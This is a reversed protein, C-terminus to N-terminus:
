SVDGLQERLRHLVRSRIKRVNAATIEFQQAVLQTPVQDVVSRLFIEWTRAEFDVQIQQLARAVLSHLDAASSPQDLCLEVPDSSLQQLNAHATSGGVAPWQSKRLVDRIKNRTITWLWARFSGSAAQPQYSGLSRHVALFVEQVCDASAHSHLGCRLCWHAILPGYLEVLESWASSDRNRVRALLSGRTAGSSSKHTLLQNAM